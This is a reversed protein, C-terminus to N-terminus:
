CREADANEERKRALIAQFRSLLTEWQQQQEPSLDRWEPYYTTLDRSAHVEYFIQADSPLSPPRRRIM